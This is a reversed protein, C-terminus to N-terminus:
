EFDKGTLFEDGTCPVAYRWQVSSTSLFYANKKVIVDVVGNSNAHEDSSDSVWCLIPKGFEELKAKTLASGSLPVPPAEFETRYLQDLLAKNEPTAHFISPHEDGSVRHGTKTFGQDDVMIPYVVGILGVVKYISNGVKPFYVSDGIKFEKM